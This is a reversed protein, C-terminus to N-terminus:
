LAIIGGIDILKGDTLSIYDINHMRLLNKILEADAHTDPNGTFALLNNEIMGCCGGIFGYGFGKLQVSGKSVTICDIGNVTLTKYVTIDDTIAANDSLKVTSCGTYGQNCHMLEFGNNQAFDKIEDAIYDTNCLIKRGFTKSNLKVDAPYPSKIGNIKIINRNGKKDAGEGITLNNVINQYNHEAVFYNIGDPTFLACDAHSAATNNIAENKRCILTKYGMNNLKEIIVPEDGSLFLTKKM